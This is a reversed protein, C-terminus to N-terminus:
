LTNYPFGWHNNNFWNAAGIFGSEATARNVATDGVLLYIRGNNIGYTETMIYQLTTKFSNADHHKSDLLPCLAVLRRKSIFDAAHEMATLYLTECSHEDDMPTQFVGMLYSFVIGIYSEKNPRTWIDIVGVMMKAM